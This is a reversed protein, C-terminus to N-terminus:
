HVGKAIVATSTTPPKTNGTKLLRLASGREGAEILAIATAIVTELAAIRREPETM